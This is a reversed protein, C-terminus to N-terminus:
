PTHCKGDIALDKKLMRTRREVGQHFTLFDQRSMMRETHILKTDTDACCEAFVNQQRMQLTKDFCIRMYFYRDATLGRVLRQRQQLFILDVDSQDPLWRDLFSKIKLWQLFNLINKHRSRGIQLMQFQAGSAAIKQLRSCKHHQIFFIDGPLIDVTYKQFM